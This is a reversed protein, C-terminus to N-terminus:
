NKKDNGWDLAGFRKHKVGQGYQLVTFSSTGAPIHTAVTPVMTKNMQKEDYGCLLFVINECVVDLYNNECVAAVLLDMLYNSPLFEGMGMHVLVWEILDSFPAIIRMPSKMHDVYAVPALLVALEVKDAWSQDLSNMTFYTTTGLSHGVYLLKQKGTTELVYQLMEPLDFKAMEDWSFQWFENKSPDLTAHERSYHNGRFNGLWVDYGQEALRFAPAGHDPGALVWDASSGELGDQMFVVPGTGKIRHLTPLYKDSTMLKHTEARYGALTIMTDTDLDHQLHPYHERLAERGQSLHPCTALLFLLLPLIPLAEVSAGLSLGM